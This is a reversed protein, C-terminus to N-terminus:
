KFKEESGHIAYQNDGYIIDIKFHELVPKSEKTAVMVSLMHDHTSSSYRTLYGNSGRHKLLSEVVQKSITGHFSHHKKMDRMLSPSVASYYQEM